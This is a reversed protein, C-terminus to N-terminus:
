MRDGTTMLKLECNRDLTPFESIKQHIKWHSSNSVEAWEASMQKERIISRWHYLSSIPCTGFQKSIYFIQEIQVKGNIYRLRNISVKASNINFWRQLVLYQLTEEMYDLVTFRDNHNLLQRISNVKNHSQYLENVNPICLRTSIDITCNDVSGMQGIAQSILGLLHM